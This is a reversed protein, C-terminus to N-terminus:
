YLINAAEIMVSLLLVVLYEKKSVTVNIAYNKFKGGDRIKVVLLQPISCGNRCYRRESRYGETNFDYDKILGGYDLVLVKVERIRQWQAFISVAFKNKYKSSAPVADNVLVNGQFSTKPELEM